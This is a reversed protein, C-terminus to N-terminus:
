DSERRYGGRCDPCAVALAGPHRLYGRGGCGSCEEPEDAPAEERAPRGCSPCEPTDDSPGAGHCLGCGPYPDVPGAKQVEDMLIEAAKLAGGVARRVQRDFAEPDHYPDHLDRGLLKLFVGAVIHDMTDLNM